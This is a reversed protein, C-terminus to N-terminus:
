RDRAVRAMRPEIWFVWVLAGLLATAIFLQSLLTQTTPFIGLAPVAPAWRLPTISVIGAEQLEAVGQGAFSFAMVYLLASTVGFFPKLPLRVSYRQMLFYVIGLVLFGFFMGSVIGATAGISGDSTTFLAAYFLVTEFGERYVALFAVASLAFARDSRLAQQMKSHVFDQWKRVEIKSVLWYSVWFLVGAAVLMTIGEISEQHQRAGRFLTSFGVATLASAALAAAVGWGIDVKREPAGAKALFAVLAGIILIAELGERLLIVLSQGFLSTPSSSRNLIRLAGDLSEDVDVRAAMVDAWAGASLLEGRLQTFAQEVRAAARGDRARVTTEIEEFVMYADLVRNAAVQRVGTGAEEMVSAVVEKARAVVRTAEVAADSGLYEASGAARAYAIVSTPVQKAPVGSMREAVVAALSDDSLLATLEFDSV